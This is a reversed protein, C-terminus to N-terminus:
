LPHVYKGMADSLFMMSYKNKARTYAKYNKKQITLYSNTPHKNLNCMGLIFFIFSQMILHGYRVDSAVHKHLIHVKGPTGASSYLFM